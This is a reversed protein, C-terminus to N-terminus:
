RQQPMSEVLRNRGDRAGEAPGKRWRTSQKTAIREITIRQNGGEISIEVTNRLLPIEERSPRLIRTRDSSGTGDLRAPDSSSKSRKQPLKSERTGRPRRDCATANVPPHPPQRLRSCRALSRALFKRTGCEENKFPAPKSKEEEMRATKDVAMGEEASDMRILGQEGKAYLTPKEAGSRM